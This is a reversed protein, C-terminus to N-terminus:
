EQDSSKTASDSAPPCQAFDDEEKALYIHDFYAAEGDDGPTLAIGDLQFEGFDAFLDRTVVVWEGPLEESVQLAKVDPRSAGAQYRFAPGEDALLPGWNGNAHLQLMVNKGAPKKWAFRLYRYEGPGPHEKIAVDLGPLQTRFRQDPTVQLSMLGSYRDDENVTVQGGGETLRAAFNREDEFLPLLSHVDGGTVNIKLAVVNQPLAERAGSM